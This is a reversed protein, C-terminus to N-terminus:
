EYCIWVVPLFVPFCQQAVRLPYRAEFPSLLIVGRGTKGARGTRGLRHIYQERSMPAGAQIPSPSAVAHAILSVRQFSTGPSIFSRVSIPNVIPPHFPIRAQLVLSVDPYDVGRASVDSSLLM